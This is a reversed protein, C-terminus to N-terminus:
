GGQNMHHALQKEIFAREALFGDWLCEQNGQEESNSSDGVDDPDVIQQEEITVIQELLAKKREDLNMTFVEKKTTEKLKLLFKLRGEQRYLDKEVEGFDEPHNVSFEENEYKEELETIHTCVENFRNDLFTNLTEM